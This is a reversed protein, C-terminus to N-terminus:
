ISQEDMHLKSSLCIPNRNLQKYKSTYLLKGPNKVSMIITGHQQQLDAYFQNVRKIKNKKGKCEM